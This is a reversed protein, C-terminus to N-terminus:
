ANSSKQLDESAMKIARLVRDADLQGNLLLKHVNEWISEPAKEKVCIGEVWAKQDPDGTYVVSTSAKAGSSQAAPKSNTFDEVDQTFRDSLGFTSLTADVLARKKAMKLVTNELDSPRDCYKSERTSCSGIGQGIKRGNNSITCKVVYRYFGMAEGSKPYKGGKQWKMVVTHDADKEVIEFDPVTGFAANIREAGAKYLTNKNTGPIMGYDVKPVLADRILTVVAEQQRMLADPAVPMMLDPPAPLQADQPVLDTM